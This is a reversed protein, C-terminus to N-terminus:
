AADRDVSPGARAARAGRAILRRAVEVSIAVGLGGVIMSNVGVVRGKADALPGGSNGPALRIDAVVYPSRRVDPAVHVVGIALAHEVGFPHGLAVVLEGPRLTAPDRLVPVPLPEAIAKRDVRLLALDRRVDRAAVSASARRGDAFAILARDTTAVHANTVITGDSSWIIGSGRGNPEARRSSPETSIVVTVRRLLDAVGTLDDM